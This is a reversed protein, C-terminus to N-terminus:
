KFSLLQSNHYKELITAHLANTNANIWHSMQITRLVIVDLPIRNSHIHVRKNPSGFSNFSLWYRFPTIGVSIFRSYFSYRSNMVALERTYKKTRYANLICVM